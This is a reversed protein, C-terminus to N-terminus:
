GTLIDRWNPCEYLHTVFPIILIQWAVRLNALSYGTTSDRHIPLLGSLMSIVATGALLALSHGGNAVFVIRVWLYENRLDPVRLPAIPEDNPGTTEASESWRSSEKCGKPNCAEDVQSLHTLM